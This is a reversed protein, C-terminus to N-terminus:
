DKLTEAPFFILIANASFILHYYKEKILARELHLQFHPRGERCSAKRAIAHCCFRSLEIVDQGPCAKWNTKHLVKRLLCYGFM